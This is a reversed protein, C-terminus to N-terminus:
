SGAYEYDWVATDKNVIPIESDMRVFSHHEIRSYFDATSGYEFTKFSVKNKHPTEELFKALKDFLKDSHYEHHLSVVLEAEAHLSILRDISATGNTLIEVLSPRQAKLWLVFDLLQNWITPEGGTLTITVNKNPIDLSNYISKLDNIDPYPSHNDHIGPPCYSCDYNCRKIINWDINFNSEHIKELQGVAVINGKGRYRRLRNPHKPTICDKDLDYAKERFLDLTPKDVAKPINVDPGCWCNRIECIKSHSPQKCTTYKLKGNHTIGVSHEGVECYWGKFFTHKGLKLDTLSNKYFSGDETM